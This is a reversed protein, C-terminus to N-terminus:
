RSTARSITFVGIIVVALTLIAGPLLLENPVGAILQEQQQPPTQFTRQRRDRRRELELEEEDEEDSSIRKRERMTSLPPSPPKAIAPQPDNTAAHPPQDPDHVFLDVKDRGARGALSVAELLDHDTTISVTDGENDLYSLAFGSKGLTGSEVQPLGGIADVEAGLKQAVQAVLEEVGATALVQLRHMRGSPAKFKFPFLTDEIAADPAASPEPSEAGHHSASDNPLVSDGRELSPHIGPSMLSRADPTMPPRASGEGSMVSETENDLSMWFKNWAPGESDTSSMSNIKDTMLPSFAKFMLNSVQDLTAYTLKLVDVMGVIEGAESM